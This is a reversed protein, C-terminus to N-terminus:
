TLFLYNQATPKAAATTEQADSAGVWYQKAASGPTLRALGEYAQAAEQSIDPRPKEVVREYRKWAATTAVLEDRSDKTFQSNADQTTTALKSHGDVVQALAAANKPDRQLTKEAADIRKQITENAKNSGNGGKFLDGLGGSVSSGIGFLVLGAGLLVALTLYTGQVVRRRKGKLDFLM